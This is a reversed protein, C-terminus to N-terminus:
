ALDVKKLTGGDNYYLSVVGSTTNKWLGWTGAAFQTSTAAGAGSQIYAFRKSSDIVSTGGVLLAGGAVNVNKDQGLTLVDASTTTGNAITRFVIKSGKATTSHTETARIAMHTVAYPQSSGDYGRGDMTLLVDESQVPQPSAQSGRAFFGVLGPGFGTGYSYLNVNVFNGDSKMNFSSGNWTLNDNLSQIGDSGGYPVRNAGLYEGRNVTSGSGLTVKNTVGFYNNEGLNVTVGAATQIATSMYRFTNGAIFCSDSGDLKIAPTGSGTIVNGTISVNLVGGSTLHITPGSDTVGGDSSSIQNGDIVVRYYNGSTGGVARGLRIASVAHQELSSNTLHLDASVAVDPIGLWLSYDAGLFKCSAIKIAGGAELRICAGGNGDAVSSSFECADITHDGQDDPSDPLGTAVTGVHVGADVFNTFHCDLMKTFISQRMSICRWYSDFKVGLFRTRSWSTVTNEIRVGVSALNTSAGSSFTLNEAVLRGNNVYFAVGDHMSKIVTSQGDGVIRVTGGTITIQSSIRYIGSPIYVTGQASTSAIAAAIAATLAATNDTSDNGVMGYAHGNYTTGIRTAFLDNYYRSSSGLNLTRTDNPVLSVALDRDAEFLTTGGIKFAGGLNTSADQDLTLTTTGSTAGNAVTRFVMKSGKATTTHTQTAEITFHSAAYAFSSGDYGRGDLALLIDGSQVATPSAETGRSRRGIIAGNASADGWATLLFQPFGERQLNIDAWFYSAPGWRKTSTGLSKTKDDSPTLTIAVDRDSEFVVTGGVALSGTAINLDGGQTLTLRTTGSSSGYTGGAALNLTGNNTYISYTSGSGTASNHFFLRPSNTGGDNSELQLGYADNSTRKIRLGSAFIGYDVPMHAENADMWLTHTTGTADLDFNDTEHGFVDNAIFENYDAGSRVRIGYDQNSPSFGKHIANGVFKNYDGSVDIGSRDSVNNYGNENCLNATFTNHAVNAGVNIGDLYNQDCRNGVFTNRAAGGSVELGHGATSNIFFNNSIINKQCSGDGSDTFVASSARANGIQGGTILCDAISYAYLANASSHSATSLSVHTDILHIVNCDNLHIGHGYTDKVWCNVIQVYWCRDLFIGYSTSDTQTGGFFELGEIRSRQALQSGTIVPANTRDNKLIPVNAGNALTIRSHLMSYGGDSFLTGEGRLNVGYPVIITTSVKFNKGAPFWVTGGGAAYAASLASTIAAHDDTTGDGVAGYAMVNYVGGIKAVFLDDFYATSSGLDHTRTVTPRINGAVDLGSSFTQLATFTQALGLVALTSSVDPLTWTRDATISHDLIGTFSTGSKFRPNGAVRLDVGTLELLNSSALYQLTADSDTGFVAPKSDGLTLQSPVVPLAAQQIRDRIENYESALFTQGNSKQPLTM